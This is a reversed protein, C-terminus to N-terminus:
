GHITAPAAVIKTGHGNETHVSLKFARKIRVSRVNFTRTTSFRGTSARLILILLSLVLATVM